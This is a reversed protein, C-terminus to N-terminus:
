GCHSSEVDHSDSRIKMPIRFMVKTGAGLESSIKLGYQDGYLIMLRQNVNSLGVGSGSGFGPELVKPMVEPTIGVGDDSIIIEVEGQDSRRATIQVTGKGEKPTIGHRIANEVLPQISLVPIWYDLLNKDINRIIHLKDRFRARELILYKNVFDLEEKLTNERVNQRLSIRFFSALMELLQRAMNPDTRIFMGITNLTNFLFHPNIQAQLADLRAETVLQYQHDLEALEMQMSLLQGIGGALKSVYSPIQGNKTQYLKVTGSIHGRCTLPVIVASELPCNCDKRKCNFGSKHKIVNSKGTAIVDLTAQTVIPMGPPHHECGAGIFALVKERDTIAVAAVDSIKQIIEVIKQASEENFGRRIFPLSEHAIQFTPTYLNDSTPLKSYWKVLWNILIVNTGLFLVLCVGIIWSWNGPFLVILLLGIGLHWILLYLTIREKYILSILKNKTM